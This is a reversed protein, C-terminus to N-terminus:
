GTKDTPGFTPHYHRENQVPKRMCSHAVHYDYCQGCFSDGCCEVRCSSCISSGCDACETVAPKGCPMGTDADSSGYEIECNMARHWEGSGNWSPSCNVSANVRHKTNM